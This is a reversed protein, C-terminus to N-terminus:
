TEDPFYKSRTRKAIMISIEYLIFIPIGILFQTLIDPPTIVASLLLIVIIAHKRYKRMYEPTVLGIRSLFYVLIPLEFVFGTPLTFMTMYHVFSSLTPSNIADVGVQYSGLFTIAFPAIIFYGFLVGLLFLFTCAFVLGRAANKEEKYLGPKVFRWIEYFVIPSSIVFGLWISVKIHVFFQEGLDRTILKLEPPSFCMFDSLGCIFRYTWFSAHKPAFIIQEFVFTKLSFLVIACLLIAGISRILHWRLEELHDLFSMEKQGEAKTVEKAM